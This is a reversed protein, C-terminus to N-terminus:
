LFDSVLRHQQENDDYYGKKGEDEAVEQCRTAGIEARGCGHRLGSADRHFILIILVAERLGPLLQAVLAAIVAVVLKRLVYYAAKDCLLQKLFLIFFEADGHGVFLEGVGKGARVHM